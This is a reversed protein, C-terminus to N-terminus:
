DEKKTESESSEQSGTEEAAETEEVQTDKELEAKLEEPDVSDSLKVTQYQLIREDLKMGRELEAIINGQGCYNLLVYCGKNFKKIAYALTRKGWEDVKIVVGKNKEVLSNFKTIVASNEEDSLNPNIIYLTEYYRMYCNEERGKGQEPNYKTGNVGIKQVWFYTV